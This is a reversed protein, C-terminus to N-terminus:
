NAGIATSNQFLATAGAGIAVSSKGSAFSNGGVAVAESGTANAASGASVVKIYKTTNTITGSIGDIASNIGDLASGVDHFTGTNGLAYTPPTVTGTPSVSTGGGLAAAVSNATSYLQSGNIADVSSSTIEGAKVNTMMVPTTSGKGGLTVKNHLVADDYIVADPSGGGAVTKIADSLQKVNVADTDTTGEAVNIIQREAGTAGVSVANTRDAVSKSGLAVSNNATASAAGGIATSDTGTASSDALESHTHFYKIGGGNVINKVTNDVNYIYTSLSAQWGAVNQNTMYLQSGNVADTSSESLDGNAVNTLKVKTASGVGGLTVSNRDSTDYLVVLPSGAIGNNVINNVTNTINTVNGAVNALNSAVNAVNQNTQYLQSGNVADMSYASSIDGAILNTIKTGKTGQLTILGMGSDNYLVANPNGGGGSSGGSVSKIAANLQDVNVADTGAAGATM